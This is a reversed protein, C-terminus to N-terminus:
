PAASVELSYGGASGLEGDVVVYFAQGQVASVTVQEYVGAGNLATGALCTMAGCADLVYLLPDFRGEPTVRVVVDGTANPVVRYFREPGSARGQPCGTQTASVESKDGAGVTTQQELLQPVGMPIADECLAGEPAPGMDEVAMDEVALDPAMDAPAEMDPALDPAEMDLAMDEGALDPAMDPPAVPLDPALDPAASQDAGLDPRTVAMDAAMDPAKSDVEPEDTTCGVLGAACVMWVLGSRWM